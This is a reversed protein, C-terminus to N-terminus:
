GEKQIRLYITTNELLLAEPSGNEPWEVVVLYSGSSIKELEVSNEVPYHLSTRFEFYGASTSVEVVVQDNENDLSLSWESGFSVGVNKVAGAGNIYVTDIASAIADAASRAQSLLLSYQAGEEGPNVMSAYTAIGIIALAASFVTLYEVATQGRM